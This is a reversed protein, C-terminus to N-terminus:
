AAASSTHGGLCQWGSGSDVWTLTTRFTEDLLQDGFRAVDHVLATLVVTAGGDALRPETMVQSTWRVQESRVYADLYQDRDLVQGSANVYVFNPHLLALLADIDKNTLAEARRRAADLVPGPDTM